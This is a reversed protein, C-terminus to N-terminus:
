VTLEEQAETDFSLKKITGGYMGEHRSFNLKRVIGGTKKVSYNVTNTSDIRVVVDRLNLYLIASLTEVTDTM